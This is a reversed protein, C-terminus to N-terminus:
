EIIKLEYVGIPPGFQRLKLFGWINGFYSGTLSHTDDSEGFRALERGSEALKKWRAFLEEDKQFDELSLVFYRYKNDRIYSELNNYFREDTVTFLNLAHFPRYFSSGGLAAESTDARRLSDAQINKQEEVALRTSSLRMLRAAVVIREGAPLNEEVWERAVARSDGMYALYTLKASVLVPMVFISFIFIMALGGAPPTAIKGYKVRLTNTFLLIESFGLGGLLAMFPILPLVFRHEYRFIWYFAGSYIIWFIVFLLALRWNKKFLIALGLIALILLVPESVLVPKLFVFPSVVLGAISKGERATVDVGYGYSGPYLWGPILALLIFIGAIGYLFKERVLETLSKRDYFLACLVMLLPLFGAISSVGMGFGALVGTAIYRKKFSWDPRTLFYLGLLIIFSVPLWHRGTMSLAMHILSTALLFAAVLASWVVGEDNRPKQSAIEIEDNRPKQSAIEIFTNKTIRYVLWVSITGLLINIFRAIIFFGSLDAGLYDTFQTGSYFLYKVGIFSAFFPLYLYSTYPPYYLVSKFEEYHAAPLVTELQIMKLAALPFAAEDDHLWLPLGYFLGSIRIAFALILIAFLIYKEKIM